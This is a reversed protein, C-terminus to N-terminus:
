EGSEDTLRNKSKLYRQAVWRHNEADDKATERLRDSEPWDPLASEGISELSSLIQSIETDNQEILYRELAKTFLPVLDEDATKGLAWIIESTALGASFQEEFFSQLRQKIWANEKATPDFEGFEEFYTDRGRFREFAMMAMLLADERDDKRGSSLLSDFTSLYSRM